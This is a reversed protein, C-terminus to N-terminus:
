NQLLKKIKRIYHNIASKSIKIDHNKEFEDCIELLSFDKNNLRISCFLKEKENLKNYLTENKKIKQIMNIQEQSANLSKKFNSVDLNNLRHMQNSYDRYIRKQEYDFMADVTGIYKLFDSIQESKKIYLYKYNRRTMIKVNAAVNNKILDYCEEFLIKNLFRIELHYNSNNPNNISGGSLFCGCIFAKKNDFNKILEKSSKFLLLDHELSSFDGYFEIKYVRGNSNIKKESYSFVKQFDYLNNILNYIFRATLSFSTKIEWSLCNNSINIAINNKLYASLLAKSQEKSYKGRCIEEKVIQSFTNIHKM